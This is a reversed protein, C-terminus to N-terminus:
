RWSLGGKDTSIDGRVLYKQPLPANKYGGGKRKKKQENLWANKDRCSKDCYRQRSQADDPLQKECHPYECYRIEKSM